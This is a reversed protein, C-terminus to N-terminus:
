QILIVSEVCNIWQSSCPFIGNFRSAFIELSSIKAAPRTWTQPEHVSAVLTRRFVTLPTSRLRWRRHRSVSFLLRSLSPADLPAPSGGRSPVRLPTSSLDPFFGTSAAICRHDRFRAVAIDRLQKPIAKYLFPILSQPHSTRRYFKDFTCLSGQM